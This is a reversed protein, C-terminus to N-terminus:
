GWSPMWLRLRWAEYPITQGTWVPWFFASVLVVLALFTTVGILGIRRRAVSAGVGGLALALVFTLSLIMFPEFTITYFFFMTRQSYLFWPGLGALMGALIAGTRWDRRGAWFLLVVLLSLTAAWWLVPNPLDTVVSACSGVPCGPDGADSGNYHFLVPRGAFLWTWPGSEWAHPSSLGQHFEYASRHYEWLSRLPAPLWGVGEGPHDAAWSRDYGGSTIFWGAWTSVYTALTLPIILFFAPIGDRLIGASFWRRIGVTRRAQMDWLVSLLCFVAIFSLMSWKVGLGGGLLVAFVLRWPRWAMWPGHELFARPPVGTLPDVAASVKRALIRRGHSRDLLLAYFAAVIFFMQFIDLLSTRSLVLQHGDVASLGGAVAGLTVSNFLRQAILTVLLVALTGVVAASFRWGLGRDTGFLLMGVAIMWKGLPPHVVYEPSDLPAPDGDLFAPNPDDPWEMEHGHSILTFADKVYYTEDFTLAHPQDLNVLRMLAAIITIVLPVMWTLRTAPAIVGQLRETLARYTFASRPTQIWVPRSTKLASM